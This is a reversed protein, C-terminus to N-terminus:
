KENSIGLLKQEHIYKSDTMDRKLQLIACKNNSLAIKYNIYNSDNQNLFHTWACIGGFLTGGLTIVFTCIHWWTDYWHM